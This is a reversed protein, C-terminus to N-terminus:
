CQRIGTQGPGGGTGKTTAYYDSIWAGNTLLDWWGNNGVTTGPSTCVINLQDGSRAQGVVANGTTPGNRLNVTCSSTGCLGVNFVWVGVQGSVGGSWASWGNANHARVQFTYTANSLLGGVVCTGAGPAATCTKDSGAIQVVYSDIASGNSASDNWNMRIADTSRDTQRLNTPVSPVGSPVVATASRATSPGVASTAAVSFTYSTGNTLGTVTCTLATAPSPSCTASPSGTVVYGTVPSGNATAATWTLVVSGDGAQAQVTAPATPVALPVVANSPASAAGAGSANTAVVTFTYSTGFTLGTVTCTSGDVVSCTRGEPTSTVAYTIPGAVGQLPTWSVVASLLGASASVGVVAPPVNQPTVAGSSTSNASSGVPNVAKVTFTHAVGNTLGTVTCTLAPAAITCTRAGPTSTVVYTGVAAGVSPAKWSVVVSGNRAEGVVDTPSGPLGVLVQPSAKSLASEGIENFAMVTFTYRAANDLGPVTCELPGQSWWCTAGGPSATVLYADVTDGGVVPATWAVKVSREGSTGVVGTPAGPINVPKVEASAASVPSTGKANKAVVTITYTTGDTLGSITCSLGTSTCSKGGPSATAIYGSVFYGNGSSPQWWVTVSQPRGMASVGSPASPTGIVVPDSANSAAGSGIRNTATVTFTYSLGTHLGSLTCSTTTSTCTLGEPTSVVSYQTIAAGGDAPASWSVVASKRGPVATVATPADPVRAPTVEPSTSPVSDGLANTAVVAFTYAVGNRLGSVVCQNSPATLPSTVQYTCTKSDPTSTVRYSVISSGNDSTPPDWAVTASADGATVRTAAPATPAGSPTVAASAASPVSSSSPANSAVVTFTYATGNTLGSVVCPSVAATCSKGGPNSTAVYGTIPVGGTNTPAVWSVQASGNSAVATVSTPAGPTAVPTLPQSWASFCSVGAVECGTSVGNYARVRFRYSKGLQPTFGGGSGCAGPPFTVSNGAIQGCYAGGEEQIDYWQIAQGNNAPTNWSLTIKPTGSTSASAATFSPVGPPAPPPGNTLPNNPSHVTGKVTGYGGSITSGSLEYVHWGDNSANQEVAYIQGGVVRDVVSVHGASNYPTPAEIIMDGPVPIRGSGNAFRQFGSASANDYIQYANQVGAFVGGRWGKINYLRQALEVCQRGWGYQDSNQQMYERCPVNNPANSYVNVGQGGLWSGGGILLTNCPPRNNSPPVAASARDQVTTSFGFSILATLVLVPVVLRRSNM